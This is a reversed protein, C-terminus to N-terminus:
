RSPDVVRGMFLITRTSNERITFIFPHDARFLKAPPAASIAEAFVVTAAAAETGEEDVSVFAKHLILSIYLFKSLEMGTFDAKESIFADKMGLESLKDSLLVNYEMKFRPIFLDVKEIKLSINKYEENFVKKEVEKFKGIDKPLVITMTFNGGKYPLIVVQLDENEYYQVDLNQFMMPVKVDKEATVHFKEEATEKKKFQHVWKAKFYIANVLALVTLDNFNDESVIDKIRNNTQKEVWDNIQKTIQARDAVFNVSQVSASYDKKVLNLYDQLFPHKKDAWLCNAITMEVNLKALGIEKRLNAFAPHLKDQGIKFCLAEAMQKETEGRAGAYTMALATSISYPSFFLNGEQKGLEKYLKFAFERNGEALTKLDEKDDSFVFPCYLLALVLLVFLRKM